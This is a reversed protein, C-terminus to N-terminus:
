RCREQIPTRVEVESEREVRALYQRALRLSGELVGLLEQADAALKPHRHRDLEALLVLQVAIHHQGAALCRKAVSRPDAGFPAVPRSTAIEKVAVALASAKAGILRQTEARACDARTFLENNSSRREESNNSMATPM